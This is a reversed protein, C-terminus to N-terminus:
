DLDDDVKRAEELVRQLVHRAMAAANRTAINMMEDHTYDRKDAAVARMDVDPFISTPYAQAWEELWEIFEDATM